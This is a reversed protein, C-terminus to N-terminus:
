HISSSYVYVEETTNDMSFPIARRRPTSRQPTLKIRMNSLAKTPTGLNSAELNEKNLYQSLADM